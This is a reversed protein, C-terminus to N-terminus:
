VKFTGIANQLDQGISALSEASSSVEEITAAQEEAAAAVEQSTAASNEAVRAMAESAKVVEAAALTMEGNLVEYAQNAMSAVEKIGTLIEGFAENAQNVIVIGSAVEQTSAEMAEVAKETDEQTNEILCQIDKAASASQEALKRVEEAVVAFGKGQEGARAAEIAANLALLNTQDAIGTIVDVIQGIQKSQEGLKKVINASNNTKENISAMEQTAQQLAKAGREAAQYASESAETNHKTTGAVQKINAAMADMMSATEEVSASQEQAGAAVQQISNSVEAASKAVEESSASVEESAAAVQEADEKVQGILNKLNNTARNFAEAMAQVEDKTNVSLEEITLDGQAMKNLAAAVEKIPKSIINSLFFGLVLSLLIGICGIVMALTRSANAYSTILASENFAQDAYVGVYEKIIEDAENVIAGAQKVHASVDATTGGGQIIAITQDAIGTYERFSAKYKEWTDRDQVMKEMVQADKNFDAIAQQYQELYIANHDIIFGRMAYSASQFDGQLGMTKVLRPFDQDVIQAYQKNVSGMRSTCFLLVCLFILGSFCVSGLIKTKLNLKV